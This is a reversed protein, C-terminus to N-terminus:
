NYNINKRNLNPSIMMMIHIKGHKFIRAKKKDKM